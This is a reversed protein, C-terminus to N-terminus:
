RRSVAFAIGTLEDRVSKFSSNIRSRASADYPGPFPTDTLSDKLVARADKLKDVDILHPRIKCCSGAYEVSHIANSLEREAVTLATQEQQTLKKTRHCPLAAQQLAAFAAKAERLSELLLGTDARKSSSHESYLYGILLAVVLTALAHFLSGVEVTHGLQLGTVVPLLWGALAGIVLLLGGILWRV